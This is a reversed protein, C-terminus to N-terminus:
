LHPRLSVSRALLELVKLALDEMAKMYEELAERSVSEIRRKVFYNFFHFKLTM